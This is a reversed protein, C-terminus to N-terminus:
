EQYPNRDHKRYGPKDRPQGPYDPDGPRRLDEPEGPETPMNPNEMHKPGKAQPAPKAKGEGRKSGAAMLTVKDRTCGETELLSVRADRGTNRPVRLRESMPFSNM